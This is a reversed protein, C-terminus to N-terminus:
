AGAAEDIVRAVLAAAPTATSDLVLDYISLDDLDLGYYALYRLRESAERHRNAALAKETTHGDRVAVRAAREEEDCGIWVRLASLAARTVIWGALRSELVIGGARAQEALRADLARDITPDAEALASFAAVDM